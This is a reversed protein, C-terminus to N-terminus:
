TRGTLQSCHEMLRVLNDWSSITSTGSRLVYDKNWPREFLVGRGSKMKAITEPRDDVLKDVDLLEKDSIEIYESLSKIFGHDKLWRYKRGLTGATSTTAFYIKPKRDLNRIAEVAELAGEYPKVDDYITPDEIYDYIKNWCEPKVFLHVDWAKIDESTLSDGWDLNYRDLWATVLDALVGDVDFAIIM